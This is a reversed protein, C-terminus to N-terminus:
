KKVGNYMFYGVIGGIVYGIMGFVFLHSALIGRRSWSWPETFTITLTDGFFPSYQSFLVGPVDMALAGILACASMSLLLPQNVSRVLYV